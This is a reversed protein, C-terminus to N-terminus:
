KAEKLATQILSEIEAGNAEEEEPIPVTILIGSQIGFRHNTEIGFFM